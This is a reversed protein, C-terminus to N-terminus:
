RRRSTPQPRFGYSGIKAGRVRARIDADVGELIWPRLEAARDLRERDLVPAEVDDEAVLHELM